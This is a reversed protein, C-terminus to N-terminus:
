KKRRKPPPGGSLRDDDDINQDDPLRRRKPPPGTLSGSDPRPAPPPPGDEASPAPPPPSSDPDLIDPQEDDEQETTSSGTGTESDSTAPAATIPLDVAYSPDPKSIEAESDSGSTQLQPQIQDALNNTLRLTEEPMPFTVKIDSDSAPQELQSEEEDDASDFAYVVSSEYPSEEEISALRLKEAEEMIKDDILDDLPDDIQRKRFGAPANSMKDLAGLRPSIAFAREALDELEDDPQGLQMRNGGPASGDSTGLQSQPPGPSTNNNQPSATASRPNEPSNSVNQNPDGSAGDNQYGPTLVQNPPTLWISDATSNSYIDTNDIFASSSMGAYAGPTIADPFSVPSVKQSSPSPQKTSAAPQQSAPHDTTGPATPNSDTPTSGYKSTPQPLPKGFQQFINPAAAQATQGLIDTTQLTTNTESQNANAGIYLPADTGIYGSPSSDAEQPQPAHNSQTSYASNTKHLTFPPPQNGATIPVSYPNDAAGYTTDDGYGRFDGLDHELAQQLNQHAYYVDDDLGEDDDETYSHTSLSEAIFVQLERHMRTLEHNIELLEQSSPAVKPQDSDNQQQLAVIEVVREKLYTAVSKSGALRALRQVEEFQERKLNIVIQHERM